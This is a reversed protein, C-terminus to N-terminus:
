LPSVWAPPAPPNGGAFIPAATEPSITIPYISVFATGSLVQWGTAQEPCAAGMNFGSSRVSHASSSYNSGIIWQGEAPWYYLYSGGGSTVREYVPRGGQVLGALKAYLGMRVAQVAEAGRVTVSEFCVGAIMWAIADGAAWWM